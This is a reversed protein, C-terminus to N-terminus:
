RAKRSKLAMSESYVLGDRYGLRGNSRRVMPANSPAMVFPSGHLTRGGLAVTGFPASKKWDIKTKFAPVIPAGLTPTPTDLENVVTAITGGQVGGRLEDRPDNHM